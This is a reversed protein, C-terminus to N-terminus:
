FNDAMSTYVAYWSDWKVLSFGQGLLEEVTWKHATDQYTQAFHRGSYSDQTAPLNSSDLNSQCHTTFNATLQKVQLPTVHGKIKYQATHAMQKKYAKYKSQKVLWMDAQSDEDDQLSTSAVLGVVM